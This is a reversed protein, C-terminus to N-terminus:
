RRRASPASSRWSCRCRCRSTSRAWRMPLSADAARVWRWPRGLAAEAVEGSREFLRRDVAGAARREVADATPYGNRKKM